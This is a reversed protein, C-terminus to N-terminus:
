ETDGPNPQPAQQPEAADVGLMKLADTLGRDYGERVPNKYGGTAVYRTSVERHKQLKAAILDRGECLNEAAAPDAMANLAAQAICADCWRDASYPADPKRCPHESCRGTTFSTCRDGAILAVLERASRGGSSQAPRGPDGTTSGGSEKLPDAGPPAWILEFGTDGDRQHLESSSICGGYQMCAWDGTAVKECLRHETRLVAGVPLGHLEDSTTLMPPLPAPWTLIAVQAARDEAHRARNEAAALDTPKAASDMRMRLIDLTHEVGESYGPLWGPGYSMVPPTEAHERAQDVLSRYLQDGDLADRIVTLQKEAAGARNEARALAAFLSERVVREGGQFSELVRMAAALKDLLLIADRRFALGSRRALWSNLRGEIRQQEEYPM